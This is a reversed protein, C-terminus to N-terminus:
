RPNGGPSNGNSEYPGWKQLPCKETTWSTKTRVYCGCAGCRSQALFECQNCSKLREEQVELPVRKCGNFAWQTVSKALSAAQEKLSPLEPPQGDWVARIKPNHHYFWCLQCQSKDYDSNPVVNECNCPRAM